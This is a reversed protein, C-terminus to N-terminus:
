AFKSWAVAIPIGILVMHIPLQIAVAKATIKRKACRSFPVIGLNMVVYVLVGYFAGAVIPRVGLEPFARVVLGFM